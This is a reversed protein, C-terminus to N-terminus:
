LLNNLDKKKKYFLLVLSLGMIVYPISGISYIIDSIYFFYGSLFVGILSFKELIKKPQFSQKKLNKIHRISIYYIFICFLTYILYKTVSEINRGIFFTIKNKEFSAIGEYPESNDFSLNRNTKQLVPPNVYVVAEYTDFPYMWSNSNLMIPQNFNMLGNKSQIIKSKKGYERNWTFTLNNFFHEEAELDVNAVIEPSTIKGLPWLSGKYLKTKITDPASIIPEPINTLIIGMRVMNIIDFDGFVVHANPGKPPLLEDSHKTTCVSAVVHKNSLLEIKIFYDPSPYYRGESPKTIIISKNDGVLIVMGGYQEQQKFTIWENNIKKEFYLIQNNSFSYNTIEHKYSLDFRIDDGVIQADLLPVMYQPWTDLDLVLPCFSKVVPSSNFKVITYLDFRNILDASFVTVNSNINIDHYNNKNCIVNNEREYCLEWKNILATNEYKIQPQLNSSKIKYPQNSDTNINFMVFIHDGIGNNDIDLLKYQSTNAFKLDRCDSFVCYDPNKLLIPIPFDTNITSITQRISYNLDGWPNNEAIVSGSLLFLCILCIILVNHIRM